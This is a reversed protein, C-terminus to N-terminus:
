RLHAILAVAKEIVKAIVLRDVYFSANNFFVVYPARSNAELVSEDFHLYCTLKRRQLGGRRIPM